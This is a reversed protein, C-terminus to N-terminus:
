PQRTPFSVIVWPKDLMNTCDICVCPTWRIECKGNGLKYELQLHYHKSSGRVGHSKAHKVCFSLGQFQTSACAM